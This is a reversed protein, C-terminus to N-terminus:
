RNGTEGSLLRRPWPELAYEVVSADDAAAQMSALLDEVAPRREADVRHRVRLFGSSDATRGSWAPERRSEGTPPPAPAYSAAHDSPWWKRAADFRARDLRALRGAAEPSLGAVVTAPLGRAEAEAATRKRVRRIIRGVLAEHRAADSKAELCWAARQAGVVELLHRSADLSVLPVPGAGVAYLLGSPHEGQRELLARRALAADLALRVLRDVEAEFADIGGPGTRLAAAPLNLATVTAVSAEGSAFPDGGPVDHTPRRFWRSGRTPRGVDEFAVRPEGV